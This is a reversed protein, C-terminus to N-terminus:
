VVIRRDAVRRTVKRRDLYELLPIAYKRTIGFLAKFEGVGFGQGKPIASRLTAILHDIGRESLVMDGAIRVLKGEELLYYCIRRVEASSGDVKDEIAGLNRPRISEAGWLGLIAAEIKKQEADLEIHVGGLSITGSTVEIRGKEALRGLIFQFYASGARALFRTKLEEQSVGSSLPNRDHFEGLFELIREELLLLQSELVARPPDQRVLIVDEVRDLIKSISERRLGTRARLLNLDTGEPGAAEIFGHLLVKEITSRDGLAKVFRQLRPLHGPLSKRTHKSPSNDLLIGGAITAMPSYRRLIFHDLPCAVAPQELRLQVLGAEGAELQPASLPYVRGLIEGSGQHFRIPSRPRLPAPAEAIVQLYADLMHSPSLVGPPALVMGRQLQSKELGTLNLAARQGAKAESEAEGFIQIGRVKGSRGTPFVAIPADRRLVGSYPTGTVVTGFGKKSFVRDIPMRFIHGADGTRPSSQQLQSLLTAKLEELGEGSVSDVAAIPAKELFSGAVLGRVESEVIPLLEPDLLSKKTLVIMGRPIELLQCIRFHEVTQPMVSEDAAVVLFVFEIGGIGALMNKVFREHGPVDIFGIRFDGLELSAFGLDITIGRRKEEELRDTDIGTLAKLLTTKGHDIHGATGIILDQM